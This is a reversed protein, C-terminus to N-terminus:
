VAPIFWAASYNPGKGEGQPSKCSLEQCAPFDGTEFNNSVLRGLGVVVFNTNKLM